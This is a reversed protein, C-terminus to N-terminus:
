ETWRSHIIVTLWLKDDHKEFGLRLSSWDPDEVPDRGNGPIHFDVFRVEPFVETINELANGSRVILDVGIVPSSLYNRNYVFETVYDCITMEIPIGSGNYVGWVYVTNDNGFNAIQEASFRRNTSLTVTATPSFVVGYDPHAVGSLMAYDNDKIYELVQFALASLEANSAESSPATKGGSRGFISFGTAAYVAGSVIIGVVLGISICIIHPLPRKLERARKRWPHPKL